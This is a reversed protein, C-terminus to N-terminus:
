YHYERKSGACNLGAAAKTAERIRRQPCQKGGGTTIIFVIRLSNDTKEREVSPIYYFAFFFQTFHQIGSITHIHTSTHIPHFSPDFSSFCIEKVSLYM